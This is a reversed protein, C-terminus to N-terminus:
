ASRRIRKLEPGLRKTAEWANYDAQMALWVRAGNGVLAGIKAAMDPSFAIEGAMLRHLNQRSVGLVSAIEGLTRKKRLEPVIEEAFIEGPHIPARTITDVAYENMYFGRRFKTTNSWTWEVPM